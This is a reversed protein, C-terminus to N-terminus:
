DVYILARLEPYHKISPSGSYKYNPDPVMYTSGYCNELYGKYDKPIRVSIGKFKYGITGDFDFEISRVMLGGHLRLMQKYDLGDIPNTLNCIIRNPTIHRYYFVDLSVNNLTYTEEIIRDKVLIKRFRKFGKSELASKIASPSTNIVGTDIDEDNKIFDHERVAGLLSGYDLWYDIGASEMAEAYKELVKAGNKHLNEIRKKRCYNGYLNASFFLYIKDLFHVKRISERFLNYISM